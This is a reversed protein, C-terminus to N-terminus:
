EYNYLVYRLIRILPDKKVLLLESATLGLAYTIAEDHKKELPVLETINKKNISYGSYSEFFDSFEKSIVPNKFIAWHLFLNSFKMNIWEDELFGWILDMIYEFFEQLVLRNKELNIEKKSCIINEISLLSANKTVDRILEM